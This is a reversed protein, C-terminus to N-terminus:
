TKYIFQLVGAQFQANITGISSTNNIPANPLFTGYSYLVQISLEKRLTIDVGVSLSGSAAVPYGIANNVLPVANTEYIIGSLIALKELIAYRTLGLFSWTDKYNTPIVFSGTPSHEDLQTM